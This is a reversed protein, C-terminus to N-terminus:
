KKKTKRHKMQNLKNFLFRKTYKHKNKTGYDEFFLMIENLDHFMGISKNFKINDINKIVHLFNYNVSTDQKKLFNNLHIPDLDINFKLISFLKYKKDNLINNKNILTILEEKSLINPRQLIVNEQNMKIIEQNQNLYAFHVHITQIDELYYHEYPKEMADFDDIWSFDIEEFEELESTMTNYM